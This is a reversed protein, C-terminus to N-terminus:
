LVDITHYANCATDCECRVTLTAGPQAAVVWTVKEQVPDHRLTNIGGLYGIHGTIISGFGGLARFSREQEGEILRDYGSLTVRVPREKHLKLARYTLHTPLFGRNGVTASVRYVGAQLRECTVDDIALRPLTHVDGLMFATHKEVEQRLWVPPCNQVVFKHHVGGIEVEGLQPHCFRTWPKFTDAGLHEDIWRLVAATDRESPGDEKLIGFANMPYANPVGALQNISWCEVTMAPIGLAEHCWDDFAGYSGGIDKPWFQRFLNLVPYGTIRSGLEGRAEYLRRDAHYVDDDTPFQPPYILYGGATHYTLVSAINRHGLIFDALARTEAHCLPYAGTVTWKEHEWGIPFNRNFDLPCSPDAAQIHVGDWDKILGERYVHYFEGETEWPKRRVMLRPDDPSVKWCGKDDPIRMFRIAGDGDVDAPHLGPLIDTGPFTRHMSRVEAPTTLYLEAGDLAVRPIVYFTDNQLLARILPDDANTLLTDILHLAVMSATVEGAHQNGDVYLAPKKEPQGSTFDTVTAAWLSRGEATQTLAELKMLDPHEEQLQFLADTLEEYLFYHDYAVTTKM